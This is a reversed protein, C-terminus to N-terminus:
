RHRWIWVESALRVRIPEEQTKGAKRSEKEFRSCNAGESIRRRLLRAFLHKEELGRRNTVRMRKRKRGEDLKLNNGFVGKRQKVVNKRPSKKRKAKFRRAVEPWV